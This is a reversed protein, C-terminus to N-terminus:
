LLMNKSQPTAVNGQPRCPGSQYCQLDLTLVGSSGKDQDKYIGVLMDANSFLKDKLSIVIVQFQARKLFCTLANVNKPDLAADIEDLVFFPSPKYSQFAFLLALSAMTKEGGSLQHMDRFRKSPPMAHFLVGANFPDDRSNGGEDLELFAQGGVDDDNSGAEDSNTTLGYYIRDIEKKVHNFCKLFRETRATKTQKFSAECITRSKQLNRMDSELAKLHENAETLKEKAKLNPNKKKL